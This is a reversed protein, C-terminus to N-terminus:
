LLWLPFSLEEFGEPSYLLAVYPRDRMWIGTTPNRMKKETASKLAHIQEVPEAEDRM